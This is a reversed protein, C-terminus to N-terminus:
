VNIFRVKDDINLGIVNQLKFDRVQVDNELAQKPNSNYNPVFAAFESYEVSRGTKTEYRAKGIKKGVICHLYLQGQKEVISGNIRKGWARGEAEFTQAVGELLRQDNVKQEYDANLEVEITQVKFVEAFPNAIQKTAVDKKNMKVPTRTVVVARVASKYNSFFNVLDISSNINLM